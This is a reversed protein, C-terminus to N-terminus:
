KREEGGYSRSWRCVRGCVWVGCLRTSLSTTVTSHSDNYQVTDTLPQSGEAKQSHTQHTHPHTTTYHISKKHHGHIGEGRVYQGTSEQEQEEFNSEVRSCRSSPASHVFPPLLSLLISCFPFERTVCYVGESSM